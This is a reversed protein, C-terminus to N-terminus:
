RIKYKHMRLLFEDLYYMLFDIRTYRFNWYLASCNFQQTHGQLKVRTDLQGYTSNVKKYIVLTSNTLHRTSWLGVRVMVRFWGICSAKLWETLNHASNYQPLIKQRLIIIRRIFVRIKLTLNEAWIFLIGVDHKQSLTKRSLFSFLCDWLLFCTVALWSHDSDNFYTLFV